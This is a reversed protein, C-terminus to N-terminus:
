MEVISTMFAQNKTIRQECVGLYAGSRNEFIQRSRIKVRVDHAGSPHFGPIAKM